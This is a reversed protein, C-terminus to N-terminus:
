EAGVYQLATLLRNYIKTNEGATFGRGAYGLSIPQNSFSAAASRGLYLNNSVVATSVVSGPTLGTGNVYPIVVTSATRSVAHLGRVSTQTQNGVTAQNLRNTFNGAVPLITIGNSGNFFGGLSATAATATRRWIAFSANDQTFNVGNVAPNYNTDFYSSTGNGTMDGYANFTPSNVFAGVRAKVLDVAANEKRSLAMFNLLDLGSWVDDRKLGRILNEVCIIDKDTPAGGNKIMASFAVDANIDYGPLTLIAVSM